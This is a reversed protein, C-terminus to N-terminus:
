FDTVNIWLKICLSKGVSKSFDPFLIKNVKFATCPDSALFVTYDEPVAVYLTCETYLLEYKIAATRTYQDIRKKAVRNLEHSNPPLNTIDSGDPLSTEGIKLCGQHAEDNIRFVYILRPKLSSDFNM